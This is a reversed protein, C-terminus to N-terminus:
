EYNESDFNKKLEEVDCGADYLMFIIFAKKIHEENKLEQNKYYDVMKTVEDFTLPPTKLKRKEKEKKRNM